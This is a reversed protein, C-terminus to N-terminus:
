RGFPGWTELKINALGWETMRGSAWKAAAKINPSNTLRPGFGDTLFSTIQMVQSHQLGEERIRAMADLDVREEPLQGIVPLASMVLLSLGALLLYLRKMFLRGRTHP